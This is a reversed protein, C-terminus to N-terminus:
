APSGASSVALHLIRSGKRRSGAAREVHDDASDPFVQLEARTLPRREPRGECEAMHGATNGEHCAQVPRAGIGRGEADRTGGGRALWADSAVILVDLAIADSAVDRCGGCGRYGRRAEWTLRTDRHYVVRGPAAVEADAIGAACQRGSGAAAVRRGPMGVAGYARVSRRLCRTNAGVASHQM